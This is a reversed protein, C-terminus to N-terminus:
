IIFNYVIRSRSPGPEEEIELFDIEEIQEIEESDTDPSHTSSQQESIDDEASIYWIIHLPLTKM